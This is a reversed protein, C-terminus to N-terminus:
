YRRLGEAKKEPRWPRNEYSIPDALKVTFYSDAAARAAGGLWRCLAAALTSKGVGSPGCLAIM